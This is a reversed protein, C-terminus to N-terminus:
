ASNGASAPRRPARRASVPLTTAFRIRLMHTCVMTKQPCMGSPASVKLSSCYRASVRPPQYLRWSSPEHLRSPLGVRGGASRCGTRGSRAGGTERGASCGSRPSRVALGRPTRAGHVETCCRGARAGTGSPRGAAGAARTGQHGVSASAEAGSGVINQNLRFINEPDWRRKLAVLREYKDEGYSSRLRAAGEDPEIFNPRATGVSFRRMAEHFGRAWAVNREDESPDMWMALCFYTWSADEVSLAMAEGDTRSMAAGMPALILQGFPAPLQEAEAVVTDIAEDSLDPLADVKFYERVGRPSGADLMQQVAVYPMPQIMDIVPSGFERLAKAAEAGEEIPGVYCFVIGVAAQGRVTEPVFPEPPATLLAVGGGVEEPAKAMYDRYFRIVEGAQARPYLLLGATM